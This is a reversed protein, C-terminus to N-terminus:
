QIHIKTQIFYLFKIRRYFHFHMLDANFFFFCFFCLLAIIFESTFSLNPVISYFHGTDSYGVGVRTNPMCIKMKKELEVLKVDKEMCPQCIFKADINVEQEKRFATEISKLLEAQQLLFSGKLLPIDTDLICM